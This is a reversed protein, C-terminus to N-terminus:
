MNYKVTREFVDTM